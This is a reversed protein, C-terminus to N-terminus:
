RQTTDQSKVYSLLERSTESHLKIKDYDIEVNNLCQLLLAEGVSTGPLIGGFFSGLNEFEPVLHFTLPDRLNLYLAIVDYHKLRFERLVTRVESVINKGYRLVEISAYGPPM